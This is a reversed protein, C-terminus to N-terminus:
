LIDTVEIFSKFSSVIKVVKCTSLLNYTNKERYYNILTCNKNLLRWNQSITQMRKSFSQQSLALTLNMNKDELSKDSQGPPM